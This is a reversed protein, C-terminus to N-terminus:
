VLLDLHFLLKSRMDKDSVLEFINEFNTLYCNDNDMDVIWLNDAIIFLDEGVLKLIRGTGDAQWEFLGTNLIESEWDIREMTEMSM